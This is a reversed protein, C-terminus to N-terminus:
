QRWQPFSSEFLDRLYTSYIICGYQCNAKEYSTQYKEALSNFYDIELTKLAKLAYMKGENTGDKELSKFIRVAFPSAKLRNYAHVSPLIHGDIGVPGDAFLSSDILM